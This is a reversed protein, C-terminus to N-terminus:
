NLKKPNKDGLAARAILHAVREQVDPDSFIDDLAPPDGTVRPKRESDWEEYGRRRM